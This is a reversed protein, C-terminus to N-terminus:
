VLRRVCWWYNTRPVFSSHHGVLACQIGLSTRPQGVRRDLIAGVLQPNGVVSRKVGSVLQRKCRAASPRCTTSGPPQRKLSIPWAFYRPRRATVAPLICALPCGRMTGTYRFRCPRSVPLTSCPPTLCLNLSRILGGANFSGLLKAFAEVKKPQITGTVV